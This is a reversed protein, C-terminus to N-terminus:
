STGAPWLEAGALCGTSGTGRFTSAPLVEGLGGVALHPFALLTSREKSANAM